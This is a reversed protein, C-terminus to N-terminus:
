LKISITMVAGVTLGVTAAAFDVYASWGLLTAACSLATLGMALLVFIRLHKWAFAKRRESGAAEAEEYSTGNYWYVQETRWVHFTLWAMFWALVLSILRMPLQEDKVPLFGTALMLLLFVALGWVLGKYSKKGM